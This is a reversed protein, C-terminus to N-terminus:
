SGREGPKLHNWHISRSDYIYIFDDFLKQTCHILYRGFDEKNSIPEKGQQMELILSKIKAGSKRIEGARLLNRDQFISESEQLYALKKESIAVYVIQYTGPQAFDLIFSNNRSEVRRLYFDGEKRPLPRETEHERIALNGELIYILTASLHERAPSAIISCVSLIQIHTFQLYFNAKPDAWTQRLLQCVTNEFYDATLHQILFHEMEAPVPM